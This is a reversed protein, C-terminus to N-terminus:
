VKCWFYDFLYDELQVELLHEFGVSNLLNIAKKNKDKVTTLLLKGKMKEKALDIMKKSLETALGADRFGDAVFLGLFEVFKKNQLFELKSKLKQTESENDEIKNELSKCLSEQLNECDESNTDLACLAVLKEEIFGGLFIGNGRLISNLKKEDSMYFDKISFMKNLENYYFNKVLDFYASDLENIKLDDIGFKLM